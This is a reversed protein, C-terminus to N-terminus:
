TIKQIIDVEKFQLNVYPMRSVCSKWFPCNLVQSVFYSIMNTVCLSWPLKNFMQVFMFPTSKHWLDCCSYTLKLLVDLSNTREFNASVHIKLIKFYAISNHKAKM